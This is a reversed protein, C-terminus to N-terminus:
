KNVAVTNVAMASVTERYQLKRMAANIEVLENKIGAISKQQDALLTAQQEIIRQQEKIAEALIPTLRSYDVAKYGNADTQVIEPFFQEVEQASFGIQRDTTYAEGTMKEKNWNYYIGHLALVKDLMSGLEQINEKYRIDSCAGITGTACINGAVHLRQGPTQTGIGVNGANSLTMRPTGGTNFLFFGNPRNNAITFAPGSISAADNLQIFALSGDENVFSIRETSSGGATRNEITLGVFSNADEKIHINDTPATIGIGINGPNTNTINNGSSSWLGAGAIASPEWQSTTGNWVLAQGNAPATSSVAKGQLKTVSPGPYSGGLDGGATGSPTVPGQIDNDKKCGPLYILLVIALTITGSILSSTLKM